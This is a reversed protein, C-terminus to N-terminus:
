QAAQHTASSSSRAGTATADAFDNQASVATAAQSREIWTCPPDAEGPLVDQVAIVLAGLPDVREAAVRRLLALQDGRM